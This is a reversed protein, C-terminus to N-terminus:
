ASEGFITNLDIYTTTYEFDGCGIYSRYYATLEELNIGTLEYTMTSNDHWPHPLTIHAPVKEAVRRKLEIFEAHLTTAEQTNM